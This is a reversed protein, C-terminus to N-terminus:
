TVAALARRDLLHDIVERLIHEPAPSSTTTRWAVFGDPRTLLAGHSGTGSTTPWTNAPDETDGTPGIVCTQIPIDTETAVAKAAASWSTAESSAFLTFTGASLDVTSIERGNRRLRVHPVRTGPSGDLIQEVHETSPPTPRPDLVATSNYQYGFTTVLLAEMGVAARDEARAPSVDWHLERYHGRLVAQDLTSRAIPLRETEYTDLLAPGARHQLVAALKWALNHADALGTNLGFGGTPPVVHAADGVLHVRGETFRTATRATSQWPLVGLIEVEVDSSGLAAVVLERCRDHPFDAPTVRDRTSYPIHFIWRDVNDVPILIGSSVPNDIKCMAFGLDGVLETLDARFLVNIMHGGLEGPGATPIELLTRVTSAAGDAAVLYEARIEEREDASRDHLEAVVGSEDQRLSRLEVGFHVTAGQDRAASLLVPDILDQPCAGLLAPSIRDAETRLDPTVGVRAPASHDASALTEVELVGQNRSLRSSAEVLASEVEAERFLEASRGNVAFARPHRSLGPHREVVATRVGHRALFLAAMLGVTGAGVVLVEVERM